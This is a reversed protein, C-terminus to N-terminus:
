RRGSTFTDRPHLRSVEGLNEPARRPQCDLWGQNVETLDTGDLNENVEYKSNPLVGDATGCTDEKREPCYNIPDYGPPKPITKDANPGYDKITVLMAFAQLKEDGEGSGFMEGMWTMYIQGAHPEEASKPERGVRFKAGALPLLDGEHTGDITVPALFTIEDAENVDRTVVGTVRNGAKLVKVM